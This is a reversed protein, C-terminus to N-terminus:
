SPAPKTRFRDANKSKAKGKASVQETKLKKLNASKAKLQQIQQSHPKTENQFPVPTYGQNELFFVHLFRIGWALIM